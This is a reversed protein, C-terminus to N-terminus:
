VRDHLGYLAAVGRSCRPAIDDRCSVLIANVEGSRPLM